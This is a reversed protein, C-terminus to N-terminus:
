RASSKEKATMIDDVSAFGRQRARLGRQARKDSKMPRKSTLPAPFGFAEKPTAQNEEASM